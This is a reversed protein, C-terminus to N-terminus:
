IERRELMALCRRSIIDQLLGPLAARESNGWLSEHSVRPTAPRRWYCRRLYTNVDTNVVSICASLNRWHRELEVSGLTGRVLRLMADIELLSLRQPRTFGNGNLQREWIFPTAHHDPFNPVFM